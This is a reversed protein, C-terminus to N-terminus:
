IIAIDVKVRQCFECSFMPENHTKLHNNLISKTKFSARCFECSYIADKHVQYRHMRCKKSNIFEKGCFECQFSTNKQTVNHQLRRKVPRKVFQPLKEDSEVEISSAEPLVTKNVTEIDGRMELLEQNSKTERMSQHQIFEKKIAFGSLEMLIESETHSPMIVATINNQYVQKLRPFILSSLSLFCRNTLIQGTKTSIECDLFEPAERIIFKWIETLM